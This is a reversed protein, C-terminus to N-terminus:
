LEELSMVREAVPQQVGEMRKRTRRQASGTTAAEGGMHARKGAISSLSPTISLPALMAADAPTHSTTVDRTLTHSASSALVSASLAHSGPTAHAHPSSAVLTANLDRPAPGAPQMFDGTADGNLAVFLARGRTALHLMSPSNSKAPASQTVAPASEAATSTSQSVGCSDTVPSAQTRMARVTRARTKAGADMSFPAARVAHPVPSHADDGDSTRQLVATLSGAADQSAATGTRGHPSAVMGGAAAVARAAVGADIAARQQATIHTFPPLVHAAGVSNVLWPTYASAQPQASFSTLVAGMGATTQANQAMYPTAIAMSAPVCASLMASYANHMRGGSPTVADPFLDVLGGLDHQVHVGHGAPTPWMVVGDVRGQGHQAPPSAAVTAAPPATTGADGYMARVNVTRSEHATGAASELMVRGRVRARLHESGMVPTDMRAHTAALFPAAELGSTVHAEEEDEECLHAILGGSSSSNAVGHAPVDEVPAVVKAHGVAAVTRGRGRTARGRGRSAAARKVEVPEVEVEPEPRMEGRESSAVLALTQLPESANTCVHPPLKRVAWLPLPAGSCLPVFAPGRWRFADRRNGGRGRVHVRDLLGIACLVNAIDYLRRGKLKAAAKADTDGRAAGAKVAGRRAAPAAAPVIAHADEDSAADEDAAAGDAGAEDFFRRSGASVRRPRADAPSQMQKRAPASATAHARARPHAHARSGGTYTFSVGAEEDEFVFPEAEEVEAEPDEDDPIVFAAAFDLTMVKRDLLFLKVFRQTLVGLSRDRRARKAGGGSSLPLAVHGGDSSMIESLLPLSRLKFAVLNYEELQAEVDDIGAALANVSQRWAPGSFAPHISSPPASAADVTAPMYLPLPTYPFLWSPPPSLYAMLADGYMVGTVRDPSAASSAAAARDAAMSASRQMPADRRGTSREVALRARTDAISRSTAASYSSLPIRGFFRVAPGRQAMAEDADVGPGPVYVLADGGGEAAGQLQITTLVADRMGVDWLASDRLKKLSRPLSTTGHWTYANKERRSVMDLAELINTVDYIRRREVGLETAVADLQIIHDHQRVCYQIFSQCLVALSKDKRCYSSDARGGGKKGEAKRSAAAAAAPRSSAAKGGGPAATPADSAAMAPAVTHPPPMTEIGDWEDGSEAGGVVFDAEAAGSADFADDPGYKGGHRDM